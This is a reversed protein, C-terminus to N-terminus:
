INQCLNILIQNSMLGNVEDDANRLVFHHKYGFSEKEIGKVLSWKCEEIFERKLEKDINLLEPNNRLEELSYIDAESRADRKVPWDVSGSVSPIIDNPSSIQRTSPPCFIVPIKYGAILKM